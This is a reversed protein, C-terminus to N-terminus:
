LRLALTAAIAAVTSNASETGNGNSGNSGLGVDRVPVTEYAILTATTTVDEPVM